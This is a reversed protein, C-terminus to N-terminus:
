EWCEVPTKEHSRNLTLTQCSQAGQRDQAQALGAKVTATLQYHSSSAQTISFSYHTHDALRPDLDSIDTAYQAHSIRWEEQQLQLAYLSKQAALRQNKLLYASFSPYALAGLIAIITAVILLEVLSFGSQEATQSAYEIRSM